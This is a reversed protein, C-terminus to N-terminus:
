GDDWNRRPGPHPPAPAPSPRTPTLLPHEKSERATEPAAPLSAPNVVSNVSFWSPAHLLFVPAEAHAEEPM